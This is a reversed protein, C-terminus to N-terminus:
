VAKELEKISQDILKAHAKEDVAAGIVKSAVAVAMQAVQKEQAAKMEKMEDQLKTLEKEKAIKVEEKAEKSLRAKLEKAEEKAKEITQAADKNAQTSAKKKMAEIEEQQSISAQAAKQGEEIKQRREDLIKLVPKYLLFTLAAFVVGFNVLQFLIQLGNIEM